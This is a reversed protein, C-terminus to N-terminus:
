DDAELAARMKATMSGERKLPFAGAGSSASGRVSGRAGSGAGAGGTDAVALLSGVVLSVNLWSRHTTHHRM